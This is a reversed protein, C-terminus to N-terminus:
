WCLDQPLWWRGWKVKLPLGCLARARYISAVSRAAGRHHMTKLAGLPTLLLEELRPCIMKEGDYPVSMAQLFGSLTYDHVGVRLKKLSRGVAALWRTCHQVNWVCLSTCLVELLPSHELGISREEVPLHCNFGDDPFEVERLAPLRMIIPPSIAPHSRFRLIQLSSSNLDRGEWNTIM